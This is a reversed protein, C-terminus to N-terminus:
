HKQSYRGCTPCKTMTVEDPKEDEPKKDDAMVLEKL